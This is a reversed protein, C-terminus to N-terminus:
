ASHGNRGTRDRIAAGAGIIQNVFQVSAQRRALASGRRRNTEGPLLRGAHRLRGDSISGLTGVWEMFASRMWRITMASSRKESKCAFIVSSEPGGLGLIIASWDRKVSGSAPTFACVLGRWVRGGRAPARPHEAKRAPGMRCRGVRVTRPRPPGPPTVVFANPRGQANSLGARQAPMSFGFGASGVAITAGSAPQLHSQAAADTEHGMVGAAKGLML